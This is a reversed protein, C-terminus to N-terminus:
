VPATSNFGHSETRHSKVSARKAYKLNPVVYEHVHGDILGHGNKSVHWCKMHQRTVMNRRRRQTVRVPEKWLLDTFTLIASHPDASRDPAVQVVRINRKEFQGSILPYLNSLLYM